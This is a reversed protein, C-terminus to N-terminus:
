GRRARREAIIDEIVDRPDRDVIGSALGEAIKERLWAVDEPTEPLLGEQDRRILDRVYDEADAYRGEALRVEIWRRLEPPFDFSMEGM